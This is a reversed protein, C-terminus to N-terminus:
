RGGGREDAPDPRAAVVAADLVAVLPTAEWSVLSARAMEIWDAPAAVGLRTVASLVGIAEDFPMGLDRWAQIASRYGSLAAPM